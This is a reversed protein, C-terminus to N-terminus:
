RDKSPTKMQRLQEISIALQAVMLSVVLWEM